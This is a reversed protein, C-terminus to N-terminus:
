YIKRRIGTRELIKVSIEEVSHFTTDIFPIAEMRFLREVQGLEFRCQDIDAYRSDARRRQRIEQLRNADITLGFLKHRNAKLAAPLNMQKMDQDIFPYNAVRIGFQLALYLSTPTKGCRSVGVLIIDAEDYEKTTVGDDNDLAYNVADIRLDYNHKNAISHSRHARPEAKVGLQQEIPAVFTNLFDYCMAESGTIISRLEDDVITHFVLPRKGSQHFSNNIRERVARAKEKDEVFPFTLQEFPLPFQSLVAHGFVEATIATGDSVYFVTHM